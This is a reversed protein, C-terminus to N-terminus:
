SGVRALVNLLWRGTYTRDMSVTHAPLMQRLWLTAPRSRGRSKSPLVYTVTAEAPTPAKNACGASGNATFIM